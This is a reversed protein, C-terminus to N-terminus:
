RRCDGVKRCHEGAHSQSGRAIGKAAVIPVLALLITLLFFRMTMTNHRTTHPFNTYPANSTFKTFLHTRPVTPLTHSTTSFYQFSKVHKCVSTSTATNNFQTPYWPIYTSTPINPDSTHFNLVYYTLRTSSRMYKGSDLLSNFLANPSHHSDTAPFWPEFRLHQLTIPPTSWVRSM